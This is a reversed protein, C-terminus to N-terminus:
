RPVHHVCTLATPRAALREAAIEQHCIECIGYTGKAVRTLAAELETLHSEAQSILAALQSREYAITQGEPDHEDDANSDRSAAVLGSMDKALREVHATLLAREETLRAVISVSEETRDPYSSPFPSADVEGGGPQRSTAVSLRAYHPRDSAAMVRVGAERHVLALM